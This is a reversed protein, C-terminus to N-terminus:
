GPVHQVLEHRALENSSRTKRHLEISHLRSVASGGSRSQRSGSGLVAPCGEFNPQSAARSVSVENVSRLGVVLADCVGEPFQLSLRGLWLACRGIADVGRGRIAGRRFMGRLCFTCGAAAAAASSSSRWRDASEGSGHSGAAALRVAALASSGAGAAIALHRPRCIASCPSAAIARQRRRCRRLPRPLRAPRCGVARRHSRQLLGADHAAPPASTCEKARRNCRALGAQM